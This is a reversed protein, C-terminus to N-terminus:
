VESMTIALIGYFPFRDRLETQESLAKDISFETMPNEYFHNKQLYRYCIRTEPNCKSKMLELLQYFDPKSLWDGLNSLHIKSYYGKEKENLANQISITKFELRGLNNLLRNKNAPQLYPPLSENTCSGTLYYQLLYNESALGSTCFGEFKSYFREGTSKDAHILAQEQLGRNKYVTPHFAFKFLFQLSKRTAIKHTFVSQQEELTRSHILQMLNKKGIFPTIAFRLKNIYQEFRGANIVGKEIIVMNKDWFSKDSESLHPRITKKYIENRTKEDLKAYGLFHGNLPFDVYIATLLKFRCLKIQEESVDVACIRINENMSLLSLPVEGGGAVSLIRDAPRIDLVLQESLSDEQSIGFDFIVNM